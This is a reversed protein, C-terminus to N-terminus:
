SAWWQLLSHHHTSPPPAAICADIEPASKVKGSRGCEVCVMVDCRCARRRWWDHRNACCGTLLKVPAEPSDRAQLQMACGQSAAMARSGVANHQTTVRSRRQRCQSMGGHGEEKRKRGDGWGRPETITSSLVECGFGKAELDRGGRVDHLLLLDPEELLHTHTHTDDRRTTKHGPTHPTGHRATGHRSRSTTVSIGRRSKKYAREGLSKRKKTM